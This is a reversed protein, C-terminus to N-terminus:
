AKTIDFTDCGSKDKDGVESSKIIKAPIYGEKEILPIAGNMGTIISYKESTDLITDEDLKIEGSVEDSFKIVSCIACHYGGTKGAYVIKGEGFMWDCDKIEKKILDLIEKEDEFEIKRSATLGECDKGKTICLYETKCDLSGMFGQSKGKMVVSNHCIEKLTEKGLDLRAIFLLIIAFSTILIIITVLQKTTLEGKKNKM